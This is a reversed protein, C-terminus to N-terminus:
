TKKPFQTKKPSKGGPLKADAARHYLPNAPSTEPTMEAGLWALQAPCVYDDNADAGLLEAGGGVIIDPIKTLEGVMSLFPKQVAQGNEFIQSMIEGRRADAVALVTEGCEPDANLAWIQLASLGVVPINHPLAFGKAFSLGVRLGTFSGPGTCVSIKDIDAPKIGAQRLVDQVMDALKEAHGRGIKQASKALIGADDVLATSCWAGTTDIGLTISRRFSTPSAAM